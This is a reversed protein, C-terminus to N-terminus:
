RNANKSSWWKGHMGVRTYLSSVTRWTITTLTPLYGCSATVTLSVARPHSPPPFLTHSDPHPTSTIPPQASTISLFACLHDPAPLHNESGASLSYRTRAYAEMRPFVRKYFVHALIAEPVAGWLALALSRLPSYPQTTSELRQALGDCLIGKCFLIGSTCLFPNRLVSQPLSLRQWLPLSPASSAGAPLM